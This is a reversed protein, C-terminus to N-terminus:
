HLFIQWGIVERTCIVKRLIYYDMNQGTKQSHWILKTLNYITVYFYNGIKSMM